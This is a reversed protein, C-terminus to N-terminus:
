KLHLGCPLVLVENKSEPKESNQRNRIRKAAEDGDIGVELSGFIMERHFGKRDAKEYDSIFNLLPDMYKDHMQRHQENVDVGLSHLAAHLMEHGVIGYFFCIKETYSFPLRYAAYYRDRRDLYDWINGHYIELYNDGLFARGLIKGTSRKSLKDAECQKKKDKEPYKGCDETLIKRDAQIYGAYRESYPKGTKLLVSDELEKRRELCKEGSKGSKSECELYLIKHYLDEEMIAIDPKPMNKYIGTIEVAKIWIQDILTQDLEMENCGGILIIVSAFMM